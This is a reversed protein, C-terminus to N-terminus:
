FLGRISHLTPSTNIFAFEYFCFQQMYVEQVTNELRGIYGGLATLHKQGVNIEPQLVCTDCIKCKQLNSKVIGKSQCDKSQYISFVNINIKKM